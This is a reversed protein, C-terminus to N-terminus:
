FRDCKGARTDRIMAYWTRWSECWFWILRTDWVSMSYCFRYFRYNYSCPVTWHCRFLQIFVHAYGIVFWVSFRIM